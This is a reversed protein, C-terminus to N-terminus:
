RTRQRRNNEFEIMGTLSGNEFKVMIPKPELVLSQGQLNSQFGRGSSSGVGGVGGAMSSTASMIAGAFLKAAVGAAIAAGPATFPNSLAAKAALMTVGYTILADGIQSLGRAFIQAIVNFAGELGKGAGIAEAFGGIADAATQRIIAGMENNLDIIAQYKDRVADADLPDMEDATEGEGFDIDGIDGPGALDILGRKASNELDKYLFFLKEVEFYHDKVAKTSKRLLEELTNQSKNFQDLRMKLGDYVGKAKEVEERLDHFKKRAEDLKPNKKVFGSRTLEIKKNLNNFQGEAVVMEEVLTNIKEKATETEEGLNKVSKNIGEDFGATYSESKGALFNLFRTLAQTLTRFTRSGVGEGNELSLIFAHWASKLKHLDTLLNDQILDNMRDLEKNGDGLKTAFAEVNEINESLIVAATMARQGYMDFSTTIKDTSGKLIALESNLDGGRKAVETFIKRLDTGAKSAEIGNDVLIGLLATTESLSYGAAAATAGINGMSVQFRELTLASSSFSEAMINAVDGADSAELNFANIIKAAVQASQALDEDAVTALKRIADTSQLIEATNFGLRALELQLEGIEQATFKSQKGLEIASNKLVQIEKASAGAITQVKDMQMEFQSITNFIDRAVMGAGFVAFMGTFQRSIAGAIGKSSNRFRELRSKARNLDANLKKNDAALRFVLSNEKSM